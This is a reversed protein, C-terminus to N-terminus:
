SLPERGILMVVPMSQEYAAEIAPVVKEVDDPAEILHHVIQMADLVPEVIRVGYHRSQTPPVGPEKNLLGVMMCVPNHGEMAIGRLANMSDLLGTYQMLLLARQGAAYLGSCISVGEDEKCIQVVRLEPDALMPKLLHESTTRDPLAVIFRIGASKIATILDAARLQDTNGAM